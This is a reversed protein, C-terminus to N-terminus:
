KISAPPVINNLRLYEIMQGYHDFGHAVVGGALSARTQNEEISEFANKVTLNAMAKHAFAFSAALAAMVQDKDTLTRMAKIDVDVKLGGVASGYNYNAGAVHTIQQAFTRVGQFDSKQSKNLMAQSPAFGFKDAPMAQAASTFEAEFSSLAVDFTKAPEILTGPAIKPSPGDSIQASASAGAMLFFVVTALALRFHEAKM